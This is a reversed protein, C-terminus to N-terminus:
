NGGGVLRERVVRLAAPNREVGVEKRLARRFQEAYERGTVVGMERQLAAVLPDNAALRGPEIDDLRVVFWGGNNPAELKKTTREAMSFLLALPPIVRGSEVVTFPTPMGQALAAAGAAASVLLITSLIRM